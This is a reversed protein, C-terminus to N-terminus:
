IVSEVKSNTRIRRLKKKESSMNRQQVVQQAAETSQAKPSPPTPKPAMEQVSPTGQAAETSQVEPTPPTPKPSTEEGPSETLPEMINTEAEEVTIMKPGGEGGEIPYHKRTSTTVPVDPASSSVCSTCTIDRM